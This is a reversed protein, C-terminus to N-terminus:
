SYPACTMCLEFFITNHLFSLNTVMQDTTTMIDIVISNSNPHNNFSEVVIAAAVLSMLPFYPCLSLSLSHFGSIKSENKGICVM